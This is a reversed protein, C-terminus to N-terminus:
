SCPQRWREPPGIRAVNVPTDARIRRGLGGDIVALHYWLDPPYASSGWRAMSSVLVNTSNIITMLARGPSQEGLGSYGHISINCSNGIILSRPWDSASQEPRLGHTETKLGFITVNAASRIESIAEGAVHQNSLMYFRLPETTRNVLVARHADESTDIRNENHLNYWRGGGNGSIVTRQLTNTSRTDDIDWLPWVNKVISRRGSQWDIAYIRYTTGYLELKLDGLSSSSWRGPASRIIPTNV